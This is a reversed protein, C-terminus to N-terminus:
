ASKKGALAKVDETTLGQGGLGWSDSRVDELIVVTYPRLADALTGHARLSRLPGCVCRSFTLANDYGGLSQKFPLRVANVSRV